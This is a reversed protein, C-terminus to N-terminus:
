LLKIYRDLYTAADDVNGPVEKIFLGYKKETSQVDQFIYYCDSLPIPKDDIIKVLRVNIVSQLLSIMQLLENSVLQQKDLIM